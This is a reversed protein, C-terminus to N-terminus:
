GPQQITILIGLLERLVRDMMWDGERCANLLFPFPNAILFYTGPMHTHKIASLEGRRVFSPGTCRRSVQKWQGHRESLKLTM